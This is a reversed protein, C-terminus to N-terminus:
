DKEWKVALSLGEGLVTLWPTIIPRVRYQQGM